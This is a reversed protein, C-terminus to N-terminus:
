DENEIVEKRWAELLAADKAECRQLEEKCKTCADKAQKLTKEKATLQSASTQRQKKAEEGSAIVFEQLAEPKDIDIAAFGKVDAAVDAKVQVHTPKVM